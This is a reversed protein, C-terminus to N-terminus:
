GNGPEQDYEGSSEGSQSAWVYGCPHGQNGNMMRMVNIMTIVVVINFIVQVTCFLLLALAVYVEM